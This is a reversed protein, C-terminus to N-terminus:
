PGGYDLLEHDVRRQFFKNKGTIKVLRQGEVVGPINQRLQHSDRCVLELTFRSPHRPQIQHLLPRLERIQQQMIGLKLVPDAFFVKVLHALAYTQFFINRQEILNEVAPNWSEMKVEIDDGRRRDLNNLRWQFTNHGFVVDKSGLEEV